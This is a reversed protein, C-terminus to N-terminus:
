HENKFGCYVSVNDYAGNCYECNLCGYSRVNPIQGHPCKRGNSDTRIIESRLERENQTMNFNEKELNPELAGGLDKFLDSNIERPMM